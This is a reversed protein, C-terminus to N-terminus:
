ASCRQTLREHRFNGLHPNRVAVGGKKLYYYVREPHKLHPVRQVIQPASFGKCYLGCVRATIEADEPLKLWFGKPKIEVGMRRCAANIQSASLNTQQRIIKPSTGNKYLEVALLEAETLEHLPRFHEPRHGLSGVNIKRLIQRVRERTLGHSDGIQQLTEGALYRARFEDARADDAVGSATKKPWKIVGGAARIYRSATPASLGHERGIQTVPLGSEHQCRLLRALEMKHAPLEGPERKGVARGKHGVHRVRPFQVVEPLEPLEGNLACHDILALLEKSAGFWEGHVHHKRFMGHLTREDKHTGPVSCILELRVPSWTTLTELRLDPLKSCGIKVPGLQGVPRLFYVRKM